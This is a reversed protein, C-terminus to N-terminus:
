TRYKKWIDIVDNCQKYMENLACTERCSDYTYKKSFLNPVVNGDYCDSSYPAPLLSTHKERIFISYKSGFPLFLNQYFRSVYQLEKRNKYDEHSQFSIVLWDTKNTEGDEKQKKYVSSSNFNYNVLQPETGTALEITQNENLVYCDNRIM